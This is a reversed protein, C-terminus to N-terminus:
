FTTVRMLPYTIVPRPRSLPLGPRAVSIILAVRPRTPSSDPAMLARVVVDPVPWDATRSVETIRARVVDPLDPTYPADEDITVRHELRALHNSALERARWTVSGITYRPGELVSIVVTVENARVSLRPTVAVHVDLYGRALYAELIRQRDAAFQAPQFAGDRFRWRSRPTCHLMGRLAAASFVSNGYVEIATIHQKVGEHVHIAVRVLNTDPLRVVATSVSIAHFQYRHFYDEIARSAEFLAVPSFPRGPRLAALPRRPLRCGPMARTATLEAILPAEQVAYTLDIAASSAVATVVVDGIEPLAMLALIDRRLARPNVPEGITSRLAARLREPSVRQAGILKISRIVAGTASPARVDAPARPTAACVLLLVIVHWTRM